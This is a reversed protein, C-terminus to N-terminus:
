VLALVLAAALIAEGTSVSLFLLTTTCEVPPLSCLYQNLRSAQIVSLASLASEEKGGYCGAQLPRPCLVTM